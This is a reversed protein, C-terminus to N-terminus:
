SFAWELAKDAFIALLKGTGQGRATDVQAQIGAESTEAQIAAIQLRVDRDASGEAASFAYSILDREEQIVNNYATMTYENETMAADRNAQNQAATEATTTAQSWAANAQAVILGNNSNFQDRAAKQAANFQLVANTEGANFKNMANTQENNFM